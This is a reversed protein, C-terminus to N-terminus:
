NRPGRTPFRSDGVELTMLFRLGSDTERELDIQFRSGALLETRRATDSAGDNRVVGMRADGSFRIEAGAPLGGLALCLAAAPVSRLM